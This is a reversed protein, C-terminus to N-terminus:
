YILQTAVVRIVLSGFITPEKTIPTTKEKL